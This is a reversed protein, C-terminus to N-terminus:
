MQYTVLSTHKQISLSFITTAKRGKRGRAWTSSTIWLGPFTIMCQLSPKLTRNIDSDWDFFLLFFLFINGVGGDRIKYLDNFSLVCVCWSFSFFCPNIMLLYQEGWGKSCKGSSLLNCKHKLYKLCFVFRLSLSYERKWLICDCKESGKRCKTMRSNKVLWLFSIVCCSAWSICCSVHHPVLAAMRSFHKFFHQHVVGICLAM